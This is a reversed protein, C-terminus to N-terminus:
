ALNTKVLHLNKQMIDAIVKPYYEIPHFAWEHGVRNLYDIGLERCRNVRGREKTKENNLEQHAFSEIKKIISDTGGLYSFHWGANGILPMNKGDTRLTSLNPNDGLQFIRSFYSSTWIKNFKGFGRCNLYYYHFQQELRGHIIKKPDSTRLLGALSPNWIEDADSVVIVDDPHFDKFCTQIYNRQGTEIKWSAAGPNFNEDKISFDLSSTDPEWQLYIIKDLYGRFLDYNDAFNYPKREGSHTINAECIIFHDVHDYLLELRIKLLDIENFFTFADIIKMAFM